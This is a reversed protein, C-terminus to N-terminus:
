KGVWRPQRGRVTVRDAEGGQDCPRPSADPVSPTEGNPLSAGGATAPTTRASSVQPPHDVHHLSRRAAAPPDMAKEPFSVAVGADTLMSLDLTWLRVSRATWAEGAEEAHHWAQAETMGTVARLHALAQEARGTVNAYGLHTSLHCDSGLGILRRLAQVGSRDDYAWREHAELRRQLRRNEAAGCIECRQGARGTIMRRLREWDQPSVCTRVNTFWCSSPVMDVFLGAGFSRDEGPLLEPVPPRAAWRELGATPPRPDVWRKVAPDWRAGLAKATDKEAYPVDLYVRGASRTTPPKPPIRDAM